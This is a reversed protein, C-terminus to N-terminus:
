SDGTKDLIKSAITKASMRRDVQLGLSRAEAVLQDLTKNKELRKAGESVTDVPVIRVPEQAKGAEPTPPAEIKEAPGVVLHPSINYVVPKKFAPSSQDECPKIRRRRGRGPDVMYGSDVEFEDGPDLEYKTGEYWFRIVSSHGNHCVAM